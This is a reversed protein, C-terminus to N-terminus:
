WDGLHNVASALVSQQQRAVKAPGAQLDYVALGSFASPRAHRGRYQRDDGLPRCGTSQGTGRHDRALHPGSVPRDGLRCPGGGCNHCRRSRSGHLATAVTGRPSPIRDGPVGGCAAMVAGPFGAVSSAGRHGPVVFRGFGFGGDVRGHGAGAAAMPGGVGRERGTMGRWSPAAGCPALDDRFRRVSNSRPVSPRWAPDGACRAPGRASM